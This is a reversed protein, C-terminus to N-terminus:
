AAPRIERERFRPPVIRLGRVQNVSDRGSRQAAAIAAHPLLLLEDLELELEDDPEVEDDAGLGAASGATSFSTGADMLDLPLMVM